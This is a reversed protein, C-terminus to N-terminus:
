EVDATEVDCFRGGDGFAEVGDDSIVPAEVRQDVVGPEIRGAHKPLCARVGRRELAIDGAGCCNELAACVTPSTPSTTSRTSVASSGGSRVCVVSATRAKALVL